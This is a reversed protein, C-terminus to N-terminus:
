LIPYLCHADQKPKSSRLIWMQGIYIPNPSGGIMVTHSKKVRDSSCLCYVFHVSCVSKGWEGREFSLRSCFPLGLNNASIALRPEVRSSSNLHPSESYLSSLLVSNRPRSNQPQVMLAILTREWSLPSDARTANRRVPSRFRIAYLVIRGSQSAMWRMWLLWLCRM